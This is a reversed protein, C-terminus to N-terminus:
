SPVGLRCVLVTCLQVVINTDSANVCSTPHKVTTRTRSIVNTEESSKRAVGFSWLPDSMGSIRCRGRDDIIRRKGFTLLKNRQLAMAFNTDSDAQSRCERVSDMATRLLPINRNLGKISLRLAVPM